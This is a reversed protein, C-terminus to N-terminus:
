IGRMKLFERDGCAPNALAKRFAAEVASLHLIARRGRPPPEDQALLGCGDTEGLM